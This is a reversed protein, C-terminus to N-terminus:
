KSDCSSKTFGYGPGDVVLTGDNLGHGYLKRTSGTTGSVRGLEM